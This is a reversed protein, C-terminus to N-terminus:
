GTVDPITEVELPCDLSYLQEKVKVSADGQKYALLEAQM